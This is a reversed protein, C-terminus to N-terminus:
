RMCFTYGGANRYVRNCARSWIVSHYSVLKGQPARPTKYVNSPEATPRRVVTKRQALPDPYGLVKGVDFM